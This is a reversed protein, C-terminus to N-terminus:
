SRTVSARCRRSPPRRRRLARPREAEVIELDVVAELLDLARRLFPEVGVGLEGLAELEQDIDDLAVPRMGPSQVAAETGPYPAADVGMGLPEDAVGRALRDYAVPDAADEVGRDRGGQVADDPREVLAQHVLAPPVDLEVGQAM